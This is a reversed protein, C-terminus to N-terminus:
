FKLVLKSQITHATGADGRNDINPNNPDAPVQAFVGSSMLLGAGLAGALITLRHM